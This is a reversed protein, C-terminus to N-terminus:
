IHILSLWLAMREIERDSENLHTTSFSWRLLGDPDTLVHPSEDGVTEEEEEVSASTPVVPPPLRNSAVLSWDGSALPDWMDTFVPDERTIKNILVWEDFQSFVEEFEAPPETPLPIGLIQYLWRRYVSIPSPYSPGSPSPQVSNEIDPPLTTMEEFEDIDSFTSNNDSDTSSSSSVVPNIYVGLLLLLAHM